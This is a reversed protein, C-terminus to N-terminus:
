KNKIWKAGICYYELSNITDSINLVSLINYDQCIGEKLLAKLYDYYERSIKASFSGIASYDLYVYEKDRAIVKFDRWKENYYEHSNTISCSDEYMEVRVFCFQLQLM